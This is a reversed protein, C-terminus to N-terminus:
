FERGNDEIDRDYIISQEDVEIEKLKNLNKKYRYVKKPKKIEKQPNMFDFIISSRCKNIWGLHRETFAV